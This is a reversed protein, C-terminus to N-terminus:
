KYYCQFDKHYYLILQNGIFRIENIEDTNTSDMGSAFIARHKNDEMMMDTREIVLGKRALDTLIFQKGDQTTITATKETDQEIKM